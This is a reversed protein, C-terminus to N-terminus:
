SGLHPREWYARANTEMGGSGQFGVSLQVARRPLSSVPFLEDPLPMLRETKGAAASLEPNMVIIDQYPILMGGEEAPRIKIPSVSAAIVPLGEKGIAIPALM